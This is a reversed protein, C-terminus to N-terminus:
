FYPRFVVAVLYVHLQGHSVLMGQFLMFILRILELSMRLVSVHLSKLLVCVKAQCSTRSDTGPEQWTKLEKSM